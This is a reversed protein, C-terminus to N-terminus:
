QFLDRVSTWYIALFDWLDWFFYEYIGFLEM